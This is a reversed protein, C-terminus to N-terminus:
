ADAGERCLAEAAATLDIGVPCWTICRGCGVCGPRDYQDQWGALKHTLWQRYRSRIDPRLHLGHIYSHGPSFCSDWRREQVSREGPLEPVPGASFCFCTPCVATCNGCGLCRRALADWAPHDPQEYLARLRSAPPLRRQQAAVARALRREAEAREDDRAPRLPLGPLLGVGAQSRARLLFGQDLETLAIDYGYGAAPGDDTAACFCTAAPRTCDVAVLFLRRRRAQYAADRRPGHIFHRDQLFLGALDCARVGLVAVDDEPLPAPEFRLRGATDRQCSWLPEGPRFVLPKLAQPANAWAFWADDDGAELRYSGPQQRDHCGRPLQACSELRDYVIAGDRVQPGLCQYGQGRLADILAQLDARAIYWVEGGMAEGGPLRVLGRPGFM